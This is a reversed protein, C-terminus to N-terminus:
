REILGRVTGILLGMDQPKRLFVDAGARRAEAGVESASVVIIPTWARHPMQRARRVLELGSVRPLENDFMLLDYHGSGEIRSLAALGDACVEVRWGEMDLTDRVADAIAKFDEAYLITLSM